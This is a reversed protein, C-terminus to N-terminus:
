RERQLSNIGCKVEMRQPICGEKLIGNCLDFLWQTRIRIGGIAQIMEPARAKHKKIKKLPAVVESIRRSICDAPGEKVEVSIGHDWENQENMLKEMCEKWLDKVGKEDVIVKRSIGKSLKVSNYGVKM